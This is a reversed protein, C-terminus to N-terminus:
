MFYIEASSTLSKNSSNSFSNLQSSPTCDVWEHCESWPLDSSFSDFFYKMTIALIPAYYTSVTFISIVQSFGVGRLAPCFDFAKICGRSYFQGLVMELFYIPKGVLFLVILYPILFAGGGIFM